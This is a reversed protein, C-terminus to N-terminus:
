GDSSCAGLAVGSPRIFPLYGTGGTLDVALGFPCAGRGAGWRGAGRGPGGHWGARSCEGWHGAKLHSRLHLTAEANVLLWFKGPSKLKLNIVRRVASEMAGSGLPLKRAQLEQYGMRHANRRFYDCHKLVANARSGIALAEIEAVVREVDGRYLYGQVKRVWAKRRSEGWRCAKAIARLTEVAHYWDVVEVVKEPALGM